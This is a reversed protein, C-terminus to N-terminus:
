LERCLAYRAYFILVISIWETLNRQVEGSYDIYTTIRIGRSNLIKQRGYVTHSIGVGLAQRVRTTMENADIGANILCNPNACFGAISGM